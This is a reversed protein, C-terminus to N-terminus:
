KLYIGAVKNNTDFSLTIQVNDGKTFLGNFILVDYKGSKLADLIQGIVVIAPYCVDNNLHKLGENIANKSKLINETSIKKHTICFGNWLIFDKEPM